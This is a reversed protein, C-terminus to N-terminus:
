YVKKITMWRKESTFAAIFAGRTQLNRLLQRILKIEAPDMESSLVKLDLAFDVHVPCYLLCYLAKWHMSPSHTTSPTELNAFGPNQLYHRYVCAAILQCFLQICRLSRLIMEMYILSKWLEFTILNCVFNVASVNNIFHSYLLSLTRIIANWLSFFHTFYHLITSAVSIFFILNEEYKLFNLISCNCLWILIWSVAEEYITLYKRMEEYILFGKRMYLKAVVGNEIEKYM